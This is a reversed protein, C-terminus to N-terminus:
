SGGKGEMAEIEVKIVVLNELSSWSFDFERGSYHAMLLALGEEKEKRGTLIMAKGYGTISRFGASWSCAKEAKVMEYDTVINFCVRPDKGLIDIKRGEPASHIFLSNGSYGYCVPVVYPEGQDVMSLWCVRGHRLIHVLEERSEIAKDKRRM